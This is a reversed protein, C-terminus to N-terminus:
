ELDPALRGLITLVESHPHFLTAFAIERDDLVDFIKRQIRFPIKLADMATGCIKRGGADHGIKHLICGSAFLDRLAMEVTPNDCKQWSRFIIDSDARSLLPDM